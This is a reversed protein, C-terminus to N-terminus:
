LNNESVVPIGNEILMAAFAGFGETLTNTFTGDYIKKYGCSPSHSKLIALDIDRDIQKSILRIYNYSRECGFNIINTFDNGFEDIIKIQNGTKLKEIPNRPVKLGAMEEPCIGIFDKGKLFEIVKSNKNNKGNYKCNYGLLCKSVIYM